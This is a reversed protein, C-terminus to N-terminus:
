LTRSRWLVAALLVSIISVVLAAIWPEVDSAGLIAGLATGIGVIGATAVVRVLLSEPRRREPLSPLFGPGDGAPSSLPTPPTPSDPSATDDPQARM